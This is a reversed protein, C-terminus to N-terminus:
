ETKLHQLFQSPSVNTVKRFAAAFKSQSSFGADEALTAIKYKRYNHDTTLKDIIYKVRLENIYNTFDKKKYTNVIHSLYKTNTNCYSALYPLSVANKTFAKSQEFKDLRQLIKEATGTTMMSLNSAPLPALDEDENDVSVTIKSSDITNKNESSLQLEALMKKINEVNRKQQKRYFFFYLCGAVLVFIAILLIVSKDESEKTKQEKSKEMETYSDSVFASSRDDIKQIISDKKVGVDKLKSVDNTLAYYQEATKYIEKKLSLFESQEAIKFSKDLYEKAKVADKKEIYVQAMGNLVLGKLFNDPMGELEELAKSYNTLSEEYNKLHFYNLGLLQSNNASLFGGSQGSLAFYKIADTVSSISKKYDKIEIEYYANEQMVFGMTQNYIKPDTIKKTAELTEDIYKKSQATLRLQRYQSALFGTIKAQWTYEETDKLLQNAKSAFEVAKKIEGSQQLLSASLMLSKAQFKPTESISFLSDAIKLAKPFDKQSIELYAKTYIKNYAEPNQAKIQVTYASLIVFIFFLIYTESAKRFNAM